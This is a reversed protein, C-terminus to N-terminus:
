KIKIFYIRGSNVLIKINKNPILYKNGINNGCLKIIDDVNIKEIGQTSNLIKHIALLVIRSKIVINQKNFGKLDLVVIKRNEVTKEKTEMCDVIESKNNIAFKKLIEKREVRESINKMGIKELIEKQEELVLGDFIDTANKEIYENEAKAIQSLRNISSVINPNFEEKLYPILCNRIKNRTYINENNTKDFRPELNNIECHKEIDKRECEIIPRIYKGNRIPEIGKLGSTGTGRIINMLVTEVNDNLNHATAIKNSKTKTLVEEFFEYRAKRGAEETGIKNKKSLEVINVKKIFCEIGIKECFKLVYETEEDSEKRIMHNVHSVYIKIDLKEKFCNLLNLLCMSDPGGSVGIVISDGKEILKFKKISNLFKEEM